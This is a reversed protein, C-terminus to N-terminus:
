RPELLSLQIIRRQANSMPLSSIERSQRWGGKRNRSRAHYVHFLIRRHTTRHEFASIKILQDVKIPLEREIEIVTLPRPSEITPVQWMSRWMGGSNSEDRQQMLISGNRTITVAHHHMTRPVTRIAALPIQHQLGRRRAECWKSVPCRACQPNRPSCIIAGLEMLAENFVAPNSAHNVLEEAAKWCWRLATATGRRGPRGGLRMLVRQVNGDVIPAHAGHVISAIAGATYRGVGPLRLLEEITKPVRGGFDAVIMKAARHLNRARSYYGLGRWMSLVDQEDAAALSQVDPFRRIFLTYAEIVRSVQTQQLMAEAVIATYGTRRRRWPLDRANSEFWNSLAIITKKM